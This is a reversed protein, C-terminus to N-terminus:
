TPSNRLTQRIRRTITAMARLLRQGCGSVAAAASAEAVADRPFVGELDEVGYRSALEAASGLAARTRPRRDVETREVEVGPPETRLRARITGMQGAEAEWGNLIRLLCGAVSM